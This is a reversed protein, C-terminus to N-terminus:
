ARKRVCRRLAGELLVERFIIGKADGLTSEEVMSEWLRSDYM